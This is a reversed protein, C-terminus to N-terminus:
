PNHFIGLFQAVKPQVTVRQKIAHPLANNFAPLYASNLVSGMAALAITGGISRFFTLVATAQGIKNPIANQVILSYLSMGFGMGLVFSFLRLVLM